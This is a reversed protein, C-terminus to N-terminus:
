VLYTNGYNELNDDYDEWNSDGLLEWYHVNEVNIIASLKNGDWDIITTMLPKFHGRYTFIETETSMSLGWLNYILIKDM